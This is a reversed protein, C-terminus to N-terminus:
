HFFVCHSVSTYWKTFSVNLNQEFVFSKRHPEAPAIVATTGICESTQFSGAKHSGSRRDTFHWLFISVVHVDQKSFWQRVEYQATSNCHVKLTSTIKICRWLTNCALQGKLSLYVGTVTVRFRIDAVNSSIFVSMLIDTTHAHKPMHCTERLSVPHASRGWLWVADASRDGEIRSFHSMVCLRLAMCTCVCACPQFVSVERVFRCLGSSYVSRSHM